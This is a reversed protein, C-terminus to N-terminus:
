ILVPATSDAIQDILSRVQQIGRSQGILNTEPTFADLRERLSANVERLKKRDLAAKIRRVAADLDDIPKCMFDYAGQRIAQVATQITGHGTVMIAEARPQARQLHELLQLGDMGPMKVDMIAVDVDERDFYR